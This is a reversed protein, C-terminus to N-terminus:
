RSSMTRAVVDHGVHHGCQCEVGRRYTDSRPRAGERSREAGAALRGVRGIGGCCRHPVASECAGCGATTRMLATQRIACGTRRLVGVQGAANRRCPVTDPHWDVIADVATRVGEEIVAFAVQDGLRKAYGDWSRDWGKPSGIIQNGTAAALAGAAILGYHMARNHATEHVRLAAPQAVQAHMSQACWPAGVCLTAVVAVYAARVSRSRLVQRGTQACSVTHILSRLM